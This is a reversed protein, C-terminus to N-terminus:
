IRTTPAQAAQCDHIGIELNHIATPVAPAPPGAAPAATLKDAADLSNPATAIARVLHVVRTGACGDGVHMRNPM